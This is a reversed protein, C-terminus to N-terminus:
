VLRKTLSDFMMDEYIFGKDALISCTKYILAEDSDMFESQETIPVEFDSIMFDLWMDFWAGFEIDVPFREKYITNLRSITAVTLPTENAFPSGFLLQSLWNDYGLKKWPITKLEKLLNEPIVVGNYEFSKEEEEFLKGQKGEKWDVKSANYTPYSVNRQSSCKASVEGFRELATDYINVSPVTIGLDVYEVFSNTVNTKDQNLYEETEVTDTNFLPSTLIGKIRKEHTGTFTVQRTLRAVYQGRNNVVLSVFNHMHTGHTYLTDTDEGSFFAQMQNHSHILGICHDFIKEMYMYRTIEPADLDFETHAGNGQDMLYMDNALITVGKEFSGQFKYFLVGSWERNPSLACFTRIKTELETSIVLKFDANKNGNHQFLQTQQTQVTM